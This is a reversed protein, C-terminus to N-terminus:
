PIKGYREIYARDAEKHAPIDGIDTFTGKVKLAYVAKGDKMAGELAEKMGYVEGRPIYALFGKEVAYCGVNIDNQLTPKEKWLTIRGDPDTEIVGYKSETEHKMLAMTVFAGKRRHFELLKMLDFDLIADGYLCVFTEPLLSQASKLQGAHGMPRDSRAYEVSVGFAKGNGFYTEITRGLYGTAMVIETIGNARLWDVIHELIPKAGVPLM